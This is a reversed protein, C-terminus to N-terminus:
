NGNKTDVYQLVFQTTWAKRNHKYRRDLNIKYKINTHDFFNILTVSWTKQVGWLYYNPYRNENIDFAEEDSTNKVITRIMKIFDKKNKLSRTIIKM